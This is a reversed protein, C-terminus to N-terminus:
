YLAEVDSFQSLNMFQVISQSKKNLHDGRTEEMRAKIQKYINLLMETPQRDIEGRIVGYEILWRWLEQRATGKSQRESKVLHQLHSRAMPKQYKFGM